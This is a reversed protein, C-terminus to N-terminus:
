YTFERCKDASTSSAWELADFQEAAASDCVANWTPQTLDHFSIISKDKLLWECGIKIGNERFKAWVDKTFRFETPAVYVHTAMGNVPLLNSILQERKEIPSVNPTAATVVPLSTGSHKPKDFPLIPPALTDDQPDTGTLAAGQDKDVRAGRGP